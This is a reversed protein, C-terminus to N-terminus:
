FIVQQTEERAAEWEESTNLLIEGVSPSFIFQRALSGIFNTFNLAHKTTSLEHRHAYFADVVCIGFITAFLRHFWKDM